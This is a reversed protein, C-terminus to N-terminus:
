PDHPQGGTSGNDSLAENSSVENSTVEDSTEEDGKGGDDSKGANAPDHMEFWKLVHAVKSMLNSPRATIGHSAGPIRVMASDVGRLQLAQYFQESESIPTRYDEEGTLLMTPTSVNGVLSLPSRAMYHDQHEWPPGPFWYKYFFNYADATLAFSYWNIVPKAVVAARFRNTKGVIWASLVGGGSGGTVFLRDKDVYGQDIVFDVASMLDDYDEGPYNHHILNGFEGGYSTSGRPNVYLVVYGAAAYLQMEMAFRPGYNAFPGGHIELILPYKQSADFQPPKVIWGQIERGDFSSKVGITEVDSVMRDAFLDDNLNTLRAIRGDVQVLSVDAPSTPTCTTVAVTGDRSVSYNGSAYPRGLSTGGVHEVASRIPGITDTSDVPMWAVHTVGRDDFRFYLRKGDGSWLPQSVSRNLATSVCVAEGQGDLPRVYLHQVQYGQLRDDFGTFALLRGDPSVQPDADPGDRDTLQTVARDELDIRFLNSDLPHLDPDDHRNASVIISTGDPVWCFDSEHDFPGFTLQRPTGGDAHVVFLQRHGDKLFGQGDSRYRLETIVRAPEAWEAGEPKGPLQVMPKDADPVFMSFAIMTGDPSWQLGSPSQKLRTVVSERHEDMWYIHIQATGSENAVFAIRDGTPSWVTGRDNRMGSTLPRHKKGDSSLLWLNSRSRDKMIDMYNRSYVVTSGDPSIQPDSAFELDFVDQLQLPQRPPPGAQPDDSQAAVATPIAILFWVLMGFRRNLAAFNLLFDDIM